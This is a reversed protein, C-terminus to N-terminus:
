MREARDRASYNSATAAGAAAPERSPACVSISERDVYGGGSADPAIPAEQFVLEGVSFLDDGM